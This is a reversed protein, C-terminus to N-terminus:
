SRRGRRASRWCRTPPAAEDPRRALTDAGKLGVGGAFGPRHFALTTLTGDALKLVAIASRARVLIEDDGDGDFDGIFFITERM